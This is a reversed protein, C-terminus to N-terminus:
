PGHHDMSGTGQHKPHNKKPHGSFNLRLIKSCNYIKTVFNWTNGIWEWKKQTPPLCFSSTSVYADCKRFQKPKGFFLNLKRAHMFTITGFMLYLEVRGGNKPPLFFVYIKPHKTWLNQDVMRIKLRPNVWGVPWTM